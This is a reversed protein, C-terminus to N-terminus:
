ADHIHGYLVAQFAAIRDQKDLLNLRKCLATAAHHKHVFDGDSTLIINTDAADRWSTFTNKVLLDQYHEGGEPRFGADYLLEAIKELNRHRVLVLYDTDAGEPVPDCTVRSGCPTIECQLDSLREFIDSM